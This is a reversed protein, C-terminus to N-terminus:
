GTESGIRLTGAELAGGTAANYWGPQVTVTKPPRSCPAAIQASHGGRGHGGLRGTPAEGPERLRLLGVGKDSAKCLKRLKRLVHLKLHQRKQVHPIEQRETEHAAIAVRERRV